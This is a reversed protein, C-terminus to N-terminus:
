KGKNSKRGRKAKFSKGDLVLKDVEVPVTDIITEPIDEAPAKVDVTLFDNWAVTEVYEKLQPAIQEIIDKTIYDPLEIVQAPLIIKTIRGNGLDENIKVKEGTSNIWFM